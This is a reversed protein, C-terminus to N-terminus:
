NMVARHFPDAQCDSSCWTKTTLLQKGWVDCRDAAGHHTQPLGRRRQEARAGGEEERRVDVEEGQDGVFGGLGWFALHVVM